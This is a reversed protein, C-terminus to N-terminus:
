ILPVCQRKMIIYLEYLYNEFYIDISNLKLHYSINRCTQLEKHFLNNM